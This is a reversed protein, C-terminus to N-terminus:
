INGNLNEGLLKGELHDLGHMITQCYLDEATIFIEEGKDNLAKIKIFEPREVKFIQGPICICCEKVERNKSSRYILEPNIIISPKTKQDPLEVIIIRKLTGIEPASISVISSNYMVEIMDDILKLISDDIIFIKESPQNLIPNPFIIM